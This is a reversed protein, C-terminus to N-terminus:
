APSEEPSPIRAIRQPDIELWVTEGADYVNTPATSVRLLLDSKGVRVVYERYEGLWAREAIQRQV